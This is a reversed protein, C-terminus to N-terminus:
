VDSGLWSQPNSEHKSLRTPNWLDPQYRPDRLPWWVSHTDPTHTNDPLHLTSHVPWVDAPRTYGSKWPITPPQHPQRDYSTFCFGRLLYTVCHHLPKLFLFHGNSLTRTVFSLQFFLVPISPQPSVVQPHTQKTNRELWLRWVKDTTPLRVERPKYNQCYSNLFLIEVIELRINM